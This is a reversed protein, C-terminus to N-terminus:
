ALTTLGQSQLESSVVSQGLELDKPLSTASEPDDIITWPVIVKQYDEGSWEVYTVAIRGLTGHHIADHVNPSRFAQVFGKRQLEQEEPDMSRSVDVALVLALDVETEARVSTPISLGV